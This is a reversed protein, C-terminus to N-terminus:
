DQCLEDFLTVGNEFDLIALGKSRVEKGPKLDKPM